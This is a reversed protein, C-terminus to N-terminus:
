GKLKERSSPNLSCLQTDPLTSSFQVNFLGPSNRECAEGLIIKVSFNSVVIM